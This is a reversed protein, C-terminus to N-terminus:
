RCRSSKPPPAKSKLGQVEVNLVRFPLDQLVLTEMHLKHILHLLLDRNLDGVGCQMFASRSFFVGVNTKLSAAQPSAVFLLNFTYACALCMGSLIILILLNQTRKFLACESHRLCIALEQTFSIALPTMWAAEHLSIVLRTIM